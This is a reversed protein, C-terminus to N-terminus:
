RLRKLARRPSAVRVTAVAITVPWTGTANWYLEDHDPFPNLAQTIRYDIRYTQTGSITQNPDGIKCRKLPGETAPDCKSARGEANTVRTLAVPYERLHTQDYDFRFRID